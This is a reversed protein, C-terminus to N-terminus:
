INKQHNKKQWWQKKTKDAIFRSEWHRQKKAMKLIVVRYKRMNSRCRRLFPKDFEFEAQRLLICSLDVEEELLQNQVPIRINLLNSENSNAELQGLSVAELLNHPLLANILGLRLLEINISHSLDLLRRSLAIDISNMWNLLEIPNEPLLSKDISVHQKQKSSIECGKSDKKSESHESNGFRMVDSAMLFISKLMEFENKNTTNTDLLEKNKNDQLLGDENNIDDIKNQQNLNVDFDLSHSLDNEEYDYEYENSELSIDNFGWGDPEDFGQVPPTLSLDVSGEPSLDIRKNKEQLSSIFDEKAKEKKINKENQIERSLDMLHEVTILSRSNKVMKEINIELKRRPDDAITKGSNKEMDVVLSLIAKKVAEELHNRILQLYSAYENYVGPSIEKVLSSLLGLQDQPNYTQNPNERIM